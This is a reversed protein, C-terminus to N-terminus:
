HRLMAVMGVYFAGVAAKARIHIRKSGGSWIGGYVTEVMSSSVLGVVLANSSYM